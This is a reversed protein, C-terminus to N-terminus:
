TTSRPIECIVSGNVPSTNTFYEGKVPAVWQGGIFNAYKAKFTVLSGPSGPNAYIM